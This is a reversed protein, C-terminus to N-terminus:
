ERGGGFNSSFCENWQGSNAPTTGTHATTSKAAPSSNKTNNADADSTGTEVDAFPSGYVVDGGKPDTEGAKLNSDKKEVDGMEKHVCPCALVIAGICVVWAMIGTIIAVVNQWAGYDGIDMAFCGMWFYFVSVILRNVAYKNAQADWLAKTGKFEM